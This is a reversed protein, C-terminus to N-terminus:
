FNTIILEKIKNDPNKSNISSKCKIEIINYDCFLEMLDDSCSNNMLFKIDYDDLTMLLEYLKLHKEKDFKENNYKTFSLKNIPWYPPDCYIFDETETYEYSQTFDSVIFNVKKILSNLKLIEKKSICNIKKYNGFPVNFGNPGIRYLGRFCTKNLLIFISSAKCTKKNELLNYKKRLEYYYEEKNVVNDYNEFYKDLLKFMKKPYKQINKYCFILAENVDYAYIDGKVIIKNENVNELLSLLVSGGGLFFEHYNNINKPFLPLIKDLTQTKGGVWKLFPKIKTM